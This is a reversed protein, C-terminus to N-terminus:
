KSNTPSKGKLLSETTRQGLAMTCLLQHLPALVTSLNLLFRGYHNLLGLFSRLEGIDRPAPAEQIAKVKGSMPHLDTADVQHGFFTVEEQFFQCKENKLTLGAHKSKDLAERLNSDHESYTKGTIIIDDFYIATGQVGALIVEM